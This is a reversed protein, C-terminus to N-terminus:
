MGPTSLAASIPQASKLPQLSATKLYRVARRREERDESTLDMGELLVTSTCSGLGADRLRKRVQQTDFLELRMLPIEILDMNLGKARDILHLTENSWVSCWAYAHIGIKM